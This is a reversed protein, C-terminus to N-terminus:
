GVRWFHIHAWRTSAPSLDVAIPFPLSFRDGDDKNWILIHEGM